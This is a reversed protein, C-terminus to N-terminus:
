NENLYEMFKDYTKFKEKIKKLLDTINVGLVVCCYVIYETTNIDHQNQILKQKNIDQISIKTEKQLFNRLDYEDFTEFRCVPCLAPLLDYSTLYEKIFDEKEELTIDELEFLFDEKAKKNKLNPYMYTALEESDKILLLQKLTKELDNKICPKCISHGHICIFQRVDYHGDWGEYVEKCITCTFSSSSSNSVFGNRIKM